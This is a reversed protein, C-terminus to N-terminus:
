DALLNIQIRRNRAQGDSTDNKDVPRFEGYGTASLQRGPIGIEDQFFHIIRSSQAVSLEWNTPYREKLQSSVPTNDTHGEINLRYDPGLLTGLKELLINGEANIEPQGTDFIADSPLTIALMDQLSTITIKGEAIEEQLSETLWKDVATFDFEQAQQEALQNQLQLNTEELQAVHSSLDSNEQQLAVIKSSQKMQMKELTNTEAESQKIEKELAAVLQDYSNKLSALRAKRAIDERELQQEFLRITENQQSRELQLQDISLLLQKNSQQMEELQETIERHQHSFNQAQRKQDARNTLLDQQLESNDNLAEILHQNLESLQKKLDSNKTSLVEKDSKLQTVDRSYLDAQNAKQQYTNKSVCGCIVILLFLALPLHKLRYM